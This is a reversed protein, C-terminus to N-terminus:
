KVKGVANWADSLFRSVDKYDGGVLKIHKLADQADNIAKKFKKIAQKEDMAEHLLEEKVMERLESKKM